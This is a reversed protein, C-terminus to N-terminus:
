RVITYNHELRKLPNIANTNPDNFRICHMHSGVAETNTHVSNRESTENFAAYDQLLEHKITFLTFHICRLYHVCFEIIYLYM